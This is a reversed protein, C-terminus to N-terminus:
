PATTADENSSRYEVTAYGDMRTVYRVSKGRVTFWLTAKCGPNLWLTANLFPGDICVFKRKADQKM